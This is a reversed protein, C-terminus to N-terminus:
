SEIPTNPPRRLVMLITSPEACLHFRVKANCAKTQGLREIRLICLDQLERAAEHFQMLSMGAGMATLALDAQLIGHTQDNAISRLANRALPTLATLLFKLDNRM